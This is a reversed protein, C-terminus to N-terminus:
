RQVFVTFRSAQYLEYSLIIFKVPLSIKDYRNKTTKIDKRYIVAKQIRKEAKKDTNQVERYIIACSLMNQLNVFM